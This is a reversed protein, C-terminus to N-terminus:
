VDPKDKQSALYAAVLEDVSINLLAAFRPIKDLPIDRIGRVFDSVTSNPMELQEAIWNQRLGSDRVIQKLTVM